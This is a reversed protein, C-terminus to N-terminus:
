NSLRIVFYLRDYVIRKPCIVNNVGTKERLVAPSAWWRM